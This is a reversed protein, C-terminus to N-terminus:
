FFFGIGAGAHVAFVPFSHVRTRPEDFVFEHRTLPFWAGLQAQLAIGPRLPYEVGILPGVALWLVEDSASLLQPDARGSARVTGIEAALCLPLRLEVLDPVRCFQARGGWFDFDARHGRVQTSRGDIYLASLRPEWEAERVAVHLSAGIGLVPSYGTSALALAGIGWSASSEDRDRRPKADRVPNPADPTAPRLLEPAPEAVPSAEDPPKQLTVPADVKADIALATVLVMAETADACSSSSLERLARHKGDELLSLDGRFVDNVSEISVSFVAEDANALEVARHVRKRVMELFPEAESCVSRVAIRVPLVSDAARATGGLWPLAAAIWACVRLFRQLM